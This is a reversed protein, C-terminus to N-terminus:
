GLRNLPQTLPLFTISIYIFPLVKAKLVAWAEPSTLPRPIEFNGAEEVGAVQGFSVIHLTRRCNTHNDSRVLRGIM